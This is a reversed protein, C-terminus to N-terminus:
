ANYCNTACWFGHRDTNPNCRCHFLTKIRHGLPQAFAATGADTLGDIVVQQTMGIAILGASLGLVDGLKFLLV